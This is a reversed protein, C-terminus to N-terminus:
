NPMLVCNSTRSPYASWGPWSARKRSLPDRGILRWIAGLPDGSRFQDGAATLTAAARPDIPNGAEEASVGASSITVGHLGEREAHERAIVEAM